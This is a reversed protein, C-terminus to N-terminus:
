AAVSIVTLPELYVLLGQPNPLGAALVAEMYAALQEQHVPKQAGTKFEVVWTQNPGLVLRDPRLDPNDASIIARETLVPYGSHFVPALDPHALLVMLNQELTSAEELPVLGEDIGYKILQPLAEPTSLRELLQHLRQGRLTPTTDAPAPLFWQSLAESRRRVVLGSLGDSTHTYVPLPPSTGAATRPQQLRQSEGWVMRNEGPKFCDKFSQTNMLSQLLVHVSGEPSKLDKQFPLHIYLRHEARTLAVYLLNLNDILTHTVEAQLAEFFPSDPDPNTETPVPVPFPVENYPAKPSQCWLTVGGSKPKLSWDAKPLIVVPFQLGKSQHITMIRVAGLSAETEVAIDHGKEALTQLLQHLGGHQVQSVERGLELLRLLFPNDGISFGLAHCILPLSSELPLRRLRPAQEMLAVPVQALAFSRHASPVGNQQELSWAIHTAAITDSPHLLWEAASIVQQVQPSSILQLAEASLVPIGEALLAEAMERAQGNTRVLLTIDQFDFGAERAQEISVLLPPIPDWSNGDKEVLKVEVYGSGLHNELPQQLAGDGAFIEKLLHAADEVQRALLPVAESLFANVFTVIHEGSRRNIVLAKPEVQNPYLRAVQGLLHQEGGRWRYIAQKVDGVVLSRRAEALSNDLLPRINEWQQNSTDQFEDLLYHQYRAGIKEYLFPVPTDRVISTLLRHIDPMLLVQHERRYRTLEAEMDRVVPLLSMHKLVKDLTELPKKHSELAVVLDEYAEAFGAVMAAEAARPNPAQKSVLKEPENAVALAADTLAGFNGRAVKRVDRLIHTRGAKLDDDTAGANEAIAVADTALRIIEKRHTCYYNRLHTLARQFTEEDPLGNPFHAQFSDDLARKGQEDLEPGVRWGKSDELKAMLLDILWQTLRPEEGVLAMVNTRAWSRAPSDDLELEFGAQIRAERPLRRNVEFFFARVIRLFFADLTQIGLADYDHLVRRLLRQASRQLNIGAAATAGGLQFLDNQIDQELGAVLQETGPQSTAISHLMSIARAKLEATAKRTFTVALIRDWGEPHQLALRLYERVLTYTKGSGASAQYLLLPREAM